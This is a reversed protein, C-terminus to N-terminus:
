VCSCVRSWVYMNMFKPEIKADEDTWPGDVRTEDKMAYNFDKKLYMENTTPTLHLGTGGGTQPLAENWATIADKARKKKMLSVRGQFHEYGQPNLTTGKGLEEQFVWKSCNRAM